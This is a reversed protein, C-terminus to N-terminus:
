RGRIPPVACIPPWRPSTLTTPHAHGHIDFLINSPKVDRHIYGRGHVYDLAAAIHPLWAALGELAVAASSKCGITFAGGAVRM